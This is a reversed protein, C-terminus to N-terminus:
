TEELKPFLLLWISCANSLSRGAGGEIGYAVVSCSCGSMRESDIM